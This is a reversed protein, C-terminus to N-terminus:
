ARGWLVGLAAILLGLGFLAAMPGVGLYLAALMLVVGLLIAVDTADAGRARKM